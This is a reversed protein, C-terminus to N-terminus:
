RRKNYRKELKKVKRQLPKEWICNEYVLKNRDIHRLTKAKSWFMTTHMKNERVKKLVFTYYNLEGYKKINDQKVGAIMNIIKFVSEARAYYKVYGRSDKTVYDNDLCDIMINYRYSLYDKSAKHNSIRISHGLGGDLKLYTSFQDDYRLVHFGYNYMTKCISDALKRIAIRDQKIKAKDLQM